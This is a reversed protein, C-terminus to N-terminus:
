DINKAKPNLPQFEVITFRIPKRQALYNSSKIAAYETFQSGLDDLFDTEELSLEFKSKIWRKFDSRIALVEVALKYDPLAYLQQQLLTIGKQHFLPKKQM